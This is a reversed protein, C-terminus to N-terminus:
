INEGAIIGSLWAFGLNYGGCNGDVDLLEGIIYLGKQKLSEFSNIDIESLPVGGSAVQSKDFDKYGTINLKFNVLDNCIKSIEEKSLENYKKNNDIKNKSLILNVLKYNLLGDLLESICRGKMSNNRNYLYENINGDLWPLFNIYLDEKNNSINRVIYSSLQFVCIGSIGYDTLQVEGNEEKIFKDNEYLKIKVDSRIGSWDKLYKENSELQVLAPLPKIITHNFKSALIYGIGDSGTNPAAKSGTALVVKDVSISNNLIFKNNEYKIDTIETEYSFKVGRLKAENVLAEKITIAQNTVPYYYGNVIKPVIGISEFFSLVKEKNNDNIITSLIDLNTSNYHSITFDNNFYNCKGNGTVLIKKGCKNNKEYITVSNSGAAKISCILGAAGGGIIAINM